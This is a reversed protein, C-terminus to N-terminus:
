VLALSDALYLWVVLESDKVDVPYFANNEDSMSLVGFSAVEDRLLLIKEAGAELDELM